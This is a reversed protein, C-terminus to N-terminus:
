IKGYHELALKIDSKEPDNIFTKKMWEIYDDPLDKILIGRHKGFPM